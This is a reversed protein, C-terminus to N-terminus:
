LRTPDYIWKEKIENKIEIIKKDKEDDARLDIVFETILEITDPFDNTQGAHAYGILIEGFLHGQLLSPCEGAFINEGEGTYIFIQDDPGSRAFILTRQPADPAILRKCWAKAPERMEKINCTFPYGSILKAM